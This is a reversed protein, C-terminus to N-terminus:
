GIDPMNDFNLSDFFDNIIKKEEVTISPDYDTTDFMLGVASAIIKVDNGKAEEPFHVTHM